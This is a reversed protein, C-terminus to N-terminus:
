QNTKGTLQNYTIRTSDVKGIATEFKDVGSFERNNHRFAFENCYRHLHKESVSHYIGYIGRKFISWFGEISNTHCLGKVYEGQEHNISDHNFAGKLPTYMHSSDTYIMAGKNVNAAV